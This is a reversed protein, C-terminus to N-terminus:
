ITAPRITTFSIIPALPQKKNKILTASESKKGLRDNEPTGTAAAPQVRVLIPKGDVIVYKFSNKKNNSVEM